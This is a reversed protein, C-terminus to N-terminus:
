AKVLSTPVNRRHSLTQRTVDTFIKRKNEERVETLIKPTIKKQPPPGKKQIHLLSIFIRTVQFLQNASKCHLM